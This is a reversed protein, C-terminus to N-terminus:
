GIVLLNSKRTKATNNVPLSISMDRLGVMKSQELVLM